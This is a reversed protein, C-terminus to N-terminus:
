CIFLILFVQASAIHAVIQRGMRIVAIQSNFPVDNCIRGIGNMINHFDHKFARINDYM